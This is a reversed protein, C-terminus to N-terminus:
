GAHIVIRISPDHELSVRLIHNPVAPWCLLKEPREGNAVVVHCRQALRAIEDHLEPAASWVGNLLMLKGRASRIAPWQTSIWARLREPHLLNPAYNVGPVPVFWDPLHTDLGCVQAHVPELMLCTHALACLVFTRAGDNGGQLMSFGNPQLLLSKLHSVQAPDHAIRAHDLTPFCRCVQNLLRSRTAEPLRELLRLLAEVQPQRPKEFKDFVTSASRDVYYGLEDLPIRRGHLCELEAKIGRMLSRVRDPHYAAIGTSAQKDSATKTEMQKTNAATERSGPERAAWLAALIMPKRVSSLAPRVARRSFSSEKARWLGDIPVETTRRLLVV